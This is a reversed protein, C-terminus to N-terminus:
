NKFTADFTQDFVSRNSYIKGINWTLSLRCRKVTWKIIM